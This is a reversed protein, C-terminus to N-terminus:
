KVGYKAKLSQWDRHNIWDLDWRKEIERFIERAQEKLATQFARIISRNPKESEDALISKIRLEDMPEKPENKAEYWQADADRQAEAIHKAAALTNEAPHWNISGPAEVVLDLLKDDHLTPPREGKPEFLQSIQGALRANRERLVRQANEKNPYYKIPQANLINEIKEKYM